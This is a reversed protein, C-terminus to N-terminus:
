DHLQGSLKLLVNSEIVCRELSHGQFQRGSYFSLASHLNEPGLIPDPVELQRPRARPDVPTETLQTVEQLM